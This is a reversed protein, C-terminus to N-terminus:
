NLSNSIGKTKDKLWDTFMRRKLETKLNQNLELSKWGLLKIIAIQKGARIPQSIEEPKLRKLVQYIEKYIANPKMDHYNGENKKEPELGWRDIIDKWNEEGEVLRQYAETAVGKSLTRFMKFSVREYAERNELYCRDVQSEFWKNAILDIIGSEEQDNHDQSENVSFEKTIEYKSKITRLVFKELRRKIIKELLQMEKLESILEKSLNKTLEGAEWEQQILSEVEDIRPLSSM